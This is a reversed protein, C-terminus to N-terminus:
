ILAPLTPPAMHALTIKVVQTYGAIVDPSGIICRMVEVRANRNMPVFAHMVVGGAVVAVPV